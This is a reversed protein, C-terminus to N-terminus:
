LNEVTMSAGHSISGSITDSGVLNGYESAESGGGSKETDGSMLKTNVINDQKVNAFVAEGPAVALLMAVSLSVAMMQKLKLRM